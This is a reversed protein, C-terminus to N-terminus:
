GNKEEGINILDKKLLTSYTHWEPGLLRLYARSNRDTVNIIHCCMNARAHKEIDEWGRKLNGGHRISPDIWGQTVWYTLRNDIDIVVKGLAYGYIEGDEGVSAWFDGGTGDHHLICANAISQM